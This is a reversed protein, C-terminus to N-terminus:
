GCKAGYMYLKHKPHGFAHLNSPVKLQFPLIDLHIFSITVNWTRKLQQQSGSLSGTLRGKRRRVRRLGWAM